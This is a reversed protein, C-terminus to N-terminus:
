ENTTFGTQNSRLDDKQCPINPTFMCCASDLTNPSTDKQEVLVLLPLLFMSEDQEPLCAGLRKDHLKAVLTWILFIIFCTAM